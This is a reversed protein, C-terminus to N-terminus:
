DIDEDEDIYIYDWGTVPATLDVRISDAGLQTELEAIRRQLKSNEGLTKALASQTQRHREDGNFELSTLLWGAFSLATHPASNALRHACRQHETGDMSIIIEAAEEIISYTM